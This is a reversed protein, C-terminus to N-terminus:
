CGGQDSVLVTAHVTSSWVGIGYADAYGVYRNLRADFAIDDSNVMKRAFRVPGTAAIWSEGVGALGGGTIAETPYGAGLVVPVGAVSTTMTNGARTLLNGHCLMRPALAYPLHIVGGGNEVVIQELRGLGAAIPMPIPTGADLAWEPVAALDFIPTQECGGSTQGNALAQEVALEVAGAVSAELTSRLVEEPRRSESEIMRSVRVPLFCECEEGLTVPDILGTPTCGDGATQFTLGPFCGVGEVGDAFAERPVAVTSTPWEMGGQVAQELTQTIDWSAHAFLGNPRGVNPLGLLEAPLRISM